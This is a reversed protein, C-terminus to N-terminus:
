SRYNSRALTPVIQRDALERYREATKPSVKAARGRVMRLLYEALTVREPRRPGPTPPAQPARHTEEPRGRYTGTVTAYRQRRIGNERPLDYKISWSKGRRTITGRM